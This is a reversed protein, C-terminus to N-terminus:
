VRIPQPIQVDPVRVPPGSGNHGRNPRRIQNDWTNVFAKAVTEAAIDTVTPVAEPWRLFRDIM